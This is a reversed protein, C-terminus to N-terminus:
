KEHYGLGFYATGGSFGSVLFNRVEYKPSSIAYERGSERAVISSVLM